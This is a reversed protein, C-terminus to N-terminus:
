SSGGPLELRFSTPRVSWTLEGGMREALHQTISLGLGLGTSAAGKGFPRVAFSRPLTGGDEVGLELRDGRRLAWLRVPPAGHALANEMLNKLCVSLWHPDVFAAGDPELPSLEVRDQMSAVLGELFENVSDLRRRDLRAGGELYRRSGEVMRHLRQVEDCLRLFADQGSGSLQDFDARLPELALTLSTAPTRLEHTLTRVIFRREAEDRRRARWRSLLAGAAVLGAAALAIPGLLSAEHHRQWCYPGSRLVCAATPRDLVLPARAMHDDWAARPYAAWHDTALGPGRLLVHRPGLVIPAGGVLAALADPGFGGLLTGPLELAHKASQPGGARQAYSGGFPHIFPPNAFFELPLEVRGCRARQFVAAKELRSDPIAEERCTRAWRALAALSPREFDQTRPLLAAPDVLERHEIEVRGVPAQAARFTAVITEAEDLPTALATILALTLM